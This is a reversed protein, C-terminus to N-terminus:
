GGCVRVRLRELEVRLDLSAGMDNMLLAAEIGRMVKCDATAQLEGEGWVKIAHAPVSLMMMIVLILAKV